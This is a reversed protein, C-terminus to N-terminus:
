NDLYLDQTVGEHRLLIRKAPLGLGFGGIKNGRAVVRHCPIIIPILNRGCASGIARYAKSKMQNAVQGYTLVEGYPITSLIEWVKKQFETGNLLLPLDFDKRKHKFFEKLQALTSKLIENKQPSKVGCKKVFNVELLYNNDTTVKLLGIPTSIYDFYFM